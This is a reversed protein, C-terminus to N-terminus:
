SYKICALLAVNIPRADGPTVDVTAAANSGVGAVDWAHGQITIGYAANYAAGSGFGRDRMSATINGAYAVQGSGIVRGTDLGRGDDLARFFTGRLDPVNFTTAGDGAGYTTGIAAFLTAYTARSVAAGNCKLWGAPPTANAFYVVQGAMFEDGSNYVGNLGMARKFSRYM